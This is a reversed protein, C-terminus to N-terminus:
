AMAAKTRQCAETKGEHRHSHGVNTLCEGPPHYLGVMPDNRFMNIASAQYKYTLEM